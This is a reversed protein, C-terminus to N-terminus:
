VDGCKEGAIDKKAQLTKKLNILKKIRAEKKSATKDDPFELLPSM